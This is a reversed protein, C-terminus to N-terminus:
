NLAHAYLQRPVTLRPLLVVHLMQLRRIPLCVRHFSHAVTVYDPHNLRHAASRDEIGAPFGIGPSARMGHAAGRLSIQCTAGPDAPPRSLDWVAQLVIRFPRLAAGAHVHSVPSAQVDLDRRTLLLKRVGIRRYKRTDGSRGGGPM